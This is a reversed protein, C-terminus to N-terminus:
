KGNEKREKDIEKREYRKIASNPNVGLQYYYDSKCYKKRYKTLDVVENMFETDEGVQLNENFRHQGIISTKLASSSACSRVEKPNYDMVVGKIHFRTEIIDHSRDACYEHVMTLYDNAVMDDSDIWLIYDVKDILYDIGRNRAYSVGKNIPDSILMLNILGKKEKNIDWLWESVQGDEYIYLIMDDTLQPLLIDMLKKFEIECEESNKYYPIIVGLVKKNTNM